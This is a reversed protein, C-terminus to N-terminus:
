RSTPSRGYPFRRRERPSCSRRASALQGFASRRRPSRERQERPLWQLAQLPLNEANELNEVRVDTDPDPLIALEGELRQTGLVELVPAAIRREGGAEAAPVAEAAPM